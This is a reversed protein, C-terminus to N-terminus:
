LGARLSVSASVSGRLSASESTKGERTKNELGDYRDKRGRKGKSYINFMTHFNGYSM